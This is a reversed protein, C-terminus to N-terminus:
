QSRKREEEKEKQWPLAGKKVNTKEKENYWINKILVDGWDFFDM